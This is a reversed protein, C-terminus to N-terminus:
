STFDTVHSLEVAVYDFQVYILAILILYWFFFKYLLGFIYEMSFKPKTIVNGLIAFVLVTQM